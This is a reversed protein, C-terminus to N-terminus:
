RDFAGVQPSIAQLRTETWHIGALRGLTKSVNKYVADTKGLQCSLSVLIEFDFEDFDIKSPISPLM